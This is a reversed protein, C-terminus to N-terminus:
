RKKKKIKPTEQLNQTQFIEDEFIYMVENPIRRKQEEQKVPTTTATLPKNTLAINMSQPKNLAVTNGAYLVLATLFVARRKKNM